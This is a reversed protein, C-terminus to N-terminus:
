RRILEKVIYKLTNVINLEIFLYYRVLRVKSIFLTYLITLRISYILSHTFCNCLIYNIAEYLTYKM